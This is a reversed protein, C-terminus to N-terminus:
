QNNKAYIQQPLEIIFKAGVGPATILEVKGMLVQNVLNLLINMGLGSGGKGRKTTFFPTFIQQKVSETMGAGDDQYVMRIGNEHETITLSLNGSEGEAYAHIISNNLLNSIIQYFVGPHSHLIINPPCQYDVKHPTRSLLPQLSVFIEDIYHKLDFDRLEEHSQDVSVKKFSQILKAARNLNSLVLAACDAVETQYQQFEEHSVEGKEYAQNFQNVRDALHSNATVCIGIPTNIEHTISAVLGGLTAMKEKDVLENRTHHLEETRQKVNDELELNLQKLAAETEKLSQINKITGTVRNPRGKDDREIVKGRNLVWLWSNDPMLGRYTLEFDETGFQFCQKVTELIKPYDDPHITKELTHQLSEEVEPYQLFVNSRIAKKSVIDWDWFEDGSGWLALQLRQESKAIKDMMAEKARYKRLRVSLFLWTLLILALLYICYAWWTQWPPPVITIDLTRVPSYQSNINKARVQFQYTGPSLGTFHAIHSNIDSFWQSHLGQMRYEYDLQEAQHLNISHFKFSFLADQYSLTLAPAYSIHNAQEFRPELEVRQSRNLLFFEDIIPTKPQSIRPLNEPLIHNFGNIGGLYVRGDADVFGAGFNFEDDQLGDIATYNKITFTRTNIVSLGGSTGVWLNEQLDKVMLYAVNDILGAQSNFLRIDKNQPDFSFIGDSSSIWLRQDIFYGTFLHKSPFSKTTQPNYFTMNGEISMKILGGGYTLVWYSGADDQLIDSVEDIPLSNPDSPNSKWTQFGLEENIFLSLGGDKTAIWAQQKNDFFMSYLNNSGISNSSHPQHQYQRMRNTQKNFIYLGQGRTGIWLEGKDDQKVFSVFSLPNFDVHQFPKFGLIQKQQNEEAIYLGQATGVWLMQQKDRYISRIDTNLINRQAFSYQNIPNFVLSDLYTRNLGDGKTGIWLQREDDLWLRSIATSRLSHINGPEYEFHSYQQASANLQLLGIGSHAYAIWLHQNVDFLLDSIVFQQQNAPLQKSFVEVVPSELEGQALSVTLLEPDTNALWLQNNVGQTIASIPQQLSQHQFSHFQNNKPDYLQLGNEHAVWIRMTDDRFVHSISEGTLGSQHLKFHQTVTLSSLSFVFVGQESGLWINGQKDESIDNIGSQPLGSDAQNFHEFSDTQAHYRNLGDNLTALWLQGSKSLYLQQVHNASPGMPSSKLYIKISDGDYRNLGAQTAIWLYGSQDTVIDNVTNMSLGHEAALSDFQLSAHTPLSFSALLWFTLGLLMTLLHTFPLKM